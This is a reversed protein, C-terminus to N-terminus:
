VPHKELEIKLTIHNAVLYVNIKSLPSSLTELQSQTLQQTGALLSSLFVEERLCVAKGTRHKLWPTTSYIHSEWVKLLMSLSGVTKAITNSDSQHSHM